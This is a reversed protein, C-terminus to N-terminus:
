GLFNCVSALFAKPDDIHIWHGCAPFEEFKCRPFMRKIYSRDDNRIFNSKGGVLFLAPRAFPERLPITFDILDKLFQEIVDLNFRWGITGESKEALSLMLQSRLSDDSIISELHSMACKRAESLNPFAALEAESDRMIKIVQPYLETLETEHYQPSIDEVILKEVFQPWKMALHMAVKGGMSHGLVFVKRCSSDPIITDEILGSIDMAIESYKMSSTWPSDGHNPLDVTYVQLGLKHHLNSAMSHWNLKQGFLGHLMLLSPKDNNEMTGYKRYSLDVTFKTTSFDRKFSLIRKMKAHPFSSYLSPFRRIFHM